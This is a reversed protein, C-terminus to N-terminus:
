LQYDAGIVLRGGSIRRDDGNGNEVRGARTVDFMPVPVSEYSRVAIRLSPVDRRHGPTERNGM